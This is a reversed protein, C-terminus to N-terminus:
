CCQGFLECIFKNELLTVAEEILEKDFTMDADPFFVIDGKSKKVGFNVQCGRYNVVGDLNKQEALNYIYKKDLLEQSVEITKDTSNNDVHIVEINKYSQKQLDLIIRKINKEENKTAIVISVLPSNNMSRRRQAM